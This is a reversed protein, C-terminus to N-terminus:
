HSASVRKRESALIGTSLLAESFASRAAARPRFFQSKTPWSSAPSFTAPRKESMAVQSAFPTLGVWYRASTSMRTCVCGAERM